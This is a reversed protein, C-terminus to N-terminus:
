ESKAKARGEEASTSATLESQACSLDVVGGLSAREHAPEEVSLHGVQGVEVAEALDHELVHIVILPHLIIRPIFPM